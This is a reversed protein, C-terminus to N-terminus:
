EATRSNINQRLEGTDILPNSSGKNAITVPSNPPERLTTIKRRMDSAAFEGVARMSSVFSTGHKVMSWVADVVMNAWKGSKERFTSRMWSREPIGARPSGFEHVAGLAAMDMNSSSHKGVDFIGADVDGDSLHPLERVIRDMGLDKVVIELDASLV